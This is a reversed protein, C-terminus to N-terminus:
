RAAALTDLKVFVAQNLKIGNTKTIIKKTKFLYFRDVLEEKLLCDIVEAGGEYLISSIGKKFLIHHLKKISFFGRKNTKLYIVEVNKNENKIKKNGTAIIIKAKGKFINLNKNEPLLLSGSGNLIVRIPHKIKKESLRVNLRPNDAFVTRAGVAIADYKMRLYHVYENDRKGTIRVNSKGKVGINGLPDCAVKLACFIKKFKMNYFFIEALKQCESEFEHFHECEIKNKKLIKIGRGSVKPNPDLTGYVVKKFPLKAIAKACSGTRGQHSCPELTVHLTAQKLQNSNGEKIIKEIANIEAHNKGVQLHAGAALFQHKDNVIVAGVHPNPCVFGVGQHGVQIALFMAKRPSIYQGVEPYKIKGFAWKNEQM